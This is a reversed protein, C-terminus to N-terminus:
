SIYVSTIGFYDELTLWDGNNYLTHALEVGVYRFHWSEYKYGTENTKGKPYRLIFGYEHCHNSLWEAEPSDHFTDNIQNVDFALGSQHESHGARASYTDAKEVGDRLIYNNYLKDQTAFSRFGSSLYIHLGELTAAGKMEEFHGLVEKDLGNGYHAPLSYTKNVILVGDIYTVGDKIIGQFGKSTTFTEEEVPNAQVPKTISSEKVELLFPERAENGSSDRAVYELTYVGVKKFDYAGEVHALINERSNDTVHVSELLDIEEGVSTSLTKKYEIQPPETDIINVKMEYNKEKWFHKVRFSIMYTNVKSTDLIFDKTVLEGQDVKILEHLSVEEYLWYTVEEKYTVKIRGVSLFFIIFLLLLLIFVFRKKM